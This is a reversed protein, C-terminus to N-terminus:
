RGEKEKSNKSKSKAKLTLVRTIHPDTIKDLTEAFEEINGETRGTINMPFDGKELSGTELEDGLSNAEYEMITGINVDRGYGNSIEENIHDEDVRIETYVGEWTKTYYRGDDDRIIDTHLMGAHVPIEATIKPVGHEDLVATYAPADEVKFGGTKLAAREQLLATYGFGDNDLDGFTKIGGPYHIGDKEALGSDRYLMEERNYADRIEKMRAIPITCGRAVKVGGESPLLTIESMARRDMENAIEFRGIRYEPMVGDFEENITDEDIYVNTIEAGSFDTWEAESYQETSADLGPDDAYLGRYDVELVGPEAIRWDTEDCYLKMTSGNRLRMTVDGTLRGGLEDLKEDPVDKFHLMFMMDAM